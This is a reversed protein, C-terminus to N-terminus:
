AVPTELDVVGEVAATRIPLTFSFTSGVGPTSEVWIRGGHHEVIQKCIPLGLGTGFPKGTLTDGVQAFQEFVRPQEDEAIGMGTDAVSVIVEETGREARCTVHGNATFKVANSLLNIVVQILSDRDGTVQPLDDAVEHHLSLGKEEFLSATAAVARDVITGPDVPEMKWEVKGAEIKALDLVNNILTTLREGEAVIIDVNSRVQEVARAARADASPVVPFVREDLRRRIIKAFGVVSTLPTRLEHSVNTLFASKADNAAVAAEKAEQMEIFLRSNEVASAVQGAITEALAVENSTFERGPQDIVIGLAGILEGRAQLPVVMLGEGGLAQLLEADPTSGGSAVSAVLSRGSAELRGSVATDALLRDLTATGGAEGPRLHEAMTELEGSHGDRLAIWSIRADFLSTLEEAVFRPATDLDRVSSVTQTIRNLTALQDVRAQLQGTRQAVENQLGSILSRLRATLTNFAEALTTLEVPGAPSARQDLDGGAIAAATATLGEIPRTIPRAAATAAMVGLAIALLGVLIAVETSRTVEALANAESDSVAIQWGLAALASRHVVGTTTLSARAQVTGDADAEAPGASAVDIPEGGPGAIVHGDAALLHVDADLQDNALMVDRQIGSLDYTSALVGITVNTQPNLVGVAISVAAVEREADQTLDGIYVDSQADNWAGLWWANDSLDFEAPKAGQVAVLGGHRDTLIVNDHLLDEGRFRSLELALASSRYQLVFESSDPESRWQAEREALMAEQDAENDPYGVNAAVVGEQLIISRRGLTILSEIQEDLANGVREAHIDALTRFTREVEGIQSARIQSILVGTVIIISAVSIGTLVLPLQTALSLRVHHPADPRLRMRWLVVGVAVAHLALVAAPLMLTLPHETANLIRGNPDLLEIGVMSAVGLLALITAIPTRQTGVALAIELPIIALLPLGLLWTDAVVAAIAIGGVLQGAAIIWAAREIRGERRALAIAALHLLTMALAIGAVKLWADDARQFAALLALALRAVSAAIALFAVLLFPRM